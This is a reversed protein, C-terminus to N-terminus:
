ILILSFLFMFIFSQPTPTTLSLASILFVGHVRSKRDKCDFVKAFVFCNAFGNKGTLIPPPPYLPRFQLWFYTYFIEHCLGQLTDTIKSYIKDDKNSIQILM